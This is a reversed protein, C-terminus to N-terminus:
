THTGPARKRPSLGHGHQPLSDAVTVLHLTPSLLSAPRRAAPGGAGPRATGEVTSDSRILGAGAVPGTGTVSLATSALDPDTTATGGLPGAQPRPLCPSPVGVGRCSGPATTNSRRKQLLGHSGGLFVPGKRAAPHRLVWVASKAVPSSDCVQRRGM